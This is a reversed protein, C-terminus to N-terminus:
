IIWNSYCKKRKEVLGLSMKQLNQFSPELVKSRGKEFHKPNRMGGSRHFLHLVFDKQRYGFVTDFEDIWQGPGYITLYITLDCNQM